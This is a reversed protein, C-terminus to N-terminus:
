LGFIVREHENPALSCHAATELPAQALESQRPGRRESVLGSAGGPSGKNSGQRKDNTTRQRRAVKAQAERALDQIKPSRQSDDGTSFSRGAVELQEQLAEGVM